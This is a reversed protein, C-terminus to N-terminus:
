GNRWSPDSGQHCTECDTDFGAALHNPDTAQQHDDGHCDVCEAPLGQYVGSSHCEACDLASHAGALQFPSMTRLFRFPLSQCSRVSSNPTVQDM